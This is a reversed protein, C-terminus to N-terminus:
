QNGVLKKRQEDNHRGYANLGALWQERIDKPILEVYLPSGQEFYSQPVSYWHTLGMEPEYQRIFNVLNAEEATRIAFTMVALGQQTMSIPAVAVLECGCEGATHMLADYDINRRIVWGCAFCLPSTM